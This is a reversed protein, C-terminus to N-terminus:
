RSASVVELHRMSHNAAGTWINSWFVEVEESDGIEEPDICTIIGLPQPDAPRKLLPRDAVTVIDGLKM